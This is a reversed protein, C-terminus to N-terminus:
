FQFPNFEGAAKLHCGIYVMERIPITKSNGTSRGAMEPLLPFLVYPLLFVVRKLFKSKSRNRLNYYSIPQSCDVCLSCCNESLGLLFHFKEGLGAISNCHFVSYIFTQGRTSIDPM